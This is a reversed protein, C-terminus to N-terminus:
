SYRGTLTLSNTVVATRGYVRVQFDRDNEIAALATAGSTFNALRENRSLVRGQPNTFTYDDAWFRALAAVDRRVLAQRYQHVTMRDEQDAPGAGSANAGSAPGLLFPAVLFGLALIQHVTRM